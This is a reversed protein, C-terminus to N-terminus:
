RLIILNMTISWETTQLSSGMKKKIDSMLEQLRVKVKRKTQVVYSANCDVYSKTFLKRTLSFTSNIKAKKKDRKKPNPISYALNYNIKWAVPRFSESISKIIFFKKARINKNLSHSNQTSNNRHIHYNL